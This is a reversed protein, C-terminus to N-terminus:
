DHAYILIRACSFKHFFTIRLGVVFNWACVSTFNTKIKKFIVVFILPELFKLMKSKRAYINDRGLIFNWNKFIEGWATFLIM